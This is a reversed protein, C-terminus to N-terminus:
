NPPRPRPLPVTGSSNAAVSLRAPRPPPLPIPGAIPEADVAPLAPEVNRAGRPPGPLPVSAWIQATDNTYRFAPAPEPEAAPPPAANGTTEPSAIAAVTAPQVDTRSAMAPEPIKAMPPMVYARVFWASAGALVVVPVLVALITVVRRSRPREAETMHDADADM